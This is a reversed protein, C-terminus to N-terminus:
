DASAALSPDTEPHDLPHVIQSGGSGRSLVSFTTDDGKNARLVMQTNIASLSTKHRHEPPMTACTELDVNCFDETAHVAKVHFPVLVLDGPKLERGKADHPM